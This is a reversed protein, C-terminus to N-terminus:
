KPLLDEPSNIQIGTGLHNYKMYREAKSRLKEAPSLYAYHVLTIEPTWRTITEQGQMHSPHSILPVGNLTLYEHLEREWMIEPINRFLRIHPDADTQQTGLHRTPISFAHFQTGPVFEAMREAGELTEDADLSLIWQGTAYSKAINRQEAFSVPMPHEYLRVEPYESAIIEKTGDTSGGDVAIIESVPYTRLSDLCQRIWYEEDLVILCASIM